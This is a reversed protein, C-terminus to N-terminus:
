AAFNMLGHKEGANEPVMNVKLALKAFPPPMLQQIGPAKASPLAM